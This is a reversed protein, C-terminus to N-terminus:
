WLRSAGRTTRGRTGPWRDVGRVPWTRSRNWRLPRPTLLYVHVCCVLLITQYAWIWSEPDLTSSKLNTRVENVSRIYTSFFTNMEFTRSKPSVLLPPTRPHFRFYLIFLNKRTYAIRLHSESPNLIWCGPNPGLIRSEFTGVVISSTNWKIIKFCEIYRSWSYVIM